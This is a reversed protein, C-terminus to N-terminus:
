VVATVGVIGITDKEQPAGTRIPRTALMLRGPPLTVPILLEVSTM